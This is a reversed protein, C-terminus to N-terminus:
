GELYVSLIEGDVDFEMIPQRSGLLGLAEIGEYVEPLGLRWDAGLYKILNGGVMNAFEKLVDKVLQPTTEEGPLLNQAMQEATAKSLLFMLRISREGRIVIEALLDGRAQLGVGELGEPVMFFMEELVESIIDKLLEKM